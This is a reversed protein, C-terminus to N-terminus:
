KNSPGADPQILKGDKFIAPQYPADPSRGGRTAFMALTAFMLMCGALFLWALPLDTFTAGVSRPGRTLHLYGFVLVTPLLFLLLMELVIRLGM